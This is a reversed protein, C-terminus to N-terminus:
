QLDIPFSNYPTIILNGSAQFVNVVKINVIGARGALFMGTVPSFVKKIYFLETLYETGPKDFLQSHQFFFVFYLSTDRGCKKIFAPHYIGFLRKAPGFLDNIIKASVCVSRSDRVVTYQVYVFCFYSERPFIITIVIGAFGSCEPTFIEKAKEDPM